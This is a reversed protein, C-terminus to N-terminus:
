LLTDPFLKLNVPKFTSIIHDAKNHKFLRGKEIVWAYNDNSQIRYKLEYSPIKDNLKKITQLYMKKDEEYILNLYDEMLIQNQDINILTKIQDTIYLGSYDTEYFILGENLLEISNIFRKRLLESSNSVHELKKELEFFDHDTLNKTVKIKSRFTMSYVLLIMLLFLAYVEEIYEFSQLPNMEPFFEWIIVIFTTFIILMLKWINLRKYVLIGLLYISLILFLVIYYTYDNM